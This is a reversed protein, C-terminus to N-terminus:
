SGGSKGSTTATSSTSSNNSSSSASVSAPIPDAASMRVVISYVSDPDQSLLDAISTSAPAQDQPRTPNSLAISIKILQPLGNGQTTDWSTLWQSGDFYQFEMAIVETA